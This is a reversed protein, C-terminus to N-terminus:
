TAPCAKLIVEPSNETYHAPYETTLGNTHRHMNKIRAQILANEGSNFKLLDSLFLLIQIM